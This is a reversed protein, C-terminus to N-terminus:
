RISDLFLRSQLKAQEEFLESGSITTCGRQAAARLLPTVPPAYVADFVIMGKRLINNPVLEPHSSSTMGVPTGNMIIDMHLSSLKHFPAHECGFELSLAKAKQSSRGAVTVRAGHKAMAYVMTRATAGTGLVLVRKGQLTTRKKMISVIAPLDTNYGIASGRRMIVTNVSAIRLAEDDINDLLPLVNQKFPMTVSAGSLLPRFTSFFSPLDNVLFNVYVANVSARRFIANHYYIGRSHSVPNGFLGFIRTRRDLTHVQFVKKLDSAALQGPGTSDEPTLAAFTIHCGFIGGLIRSIQGCEGMCFASTKKVRSRSGKLTDFIIQNDTIDTAMTAIKVIDADLDQLKAHIAHINRPTKEFNHHSLIVRGSKEKRIFDRIVRKGWSAEIDVYEAGLHLANSLIGVQEKASGDFKGGESDRRNTVIVEPRSRRLIKTLDIEDSGDIRIEVLDAQRSALKLKAIADETSSPAISVCVRM